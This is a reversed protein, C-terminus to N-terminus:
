VPGGGPGMRGPDVTGRQGWERAVIIQDIGLDIGTAFQFLTASGILEVLLGLAAVLERRAGFALAVLAARSGIACVAANPMMSIGHNCGDTLRPVDALWGMLVLAGGLIAYLGLGAAAANMYCPKRM